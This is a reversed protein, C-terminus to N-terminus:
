ADHVQHIRVRSAGHSQAACRASCEERVTREDVRDILFPSSQRADRPRPSPQIAQSQRTLQQEASVALIQNCVIRGRALWKPMCSDTRGAITGFGVHQVAVLVDKRRGSILQKCKSQVLLVTM